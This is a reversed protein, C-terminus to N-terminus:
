SPIKPFSWIFYKVTVLSQISITCTRHLTTKQFTLIFFNYFLSSKWPLTVFLYASWLAEYELAEFASHNSKVVCDFHEMLQNQEFLMKNEARRNSLKVLKPVFGLEYVWYFDDDDHQAMLVSIGSGKEGGKEITWQKWYTKLAVDRIPVSSSYTSELQDNERQEDMHLPGCSHM